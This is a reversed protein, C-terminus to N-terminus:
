PPFGDSITSATAMFYSIVPLNEYSIKDREKRKVAHLIIINFISM